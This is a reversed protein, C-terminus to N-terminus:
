FSIPPKKSPRRGEIRDIDQELDELAARAIAAVDHGGTTTIPMVHEFSGTLGSNALDRYYAARFEREEVTMADTEEWAVSVLIWEACIVFETMTALRRADAIPLAFDLRTQGEPLGARRIGSAGTECSAIEDFLLWATPDSEPSPRAFARAKTITARGRATGDFEGVHDVAIEDFLFSLPRDAIHEIEMVGDGLKKMRITGRPYTSRHFDQTM